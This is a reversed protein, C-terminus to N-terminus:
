MSRRGREGEDPLASPVFWKDGRGNVRSRRVRLPADQRSRRDLFPIPLILWTQSM